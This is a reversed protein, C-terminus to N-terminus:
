DQILNHLPQVRLSPAACDAAVSELATTTSQAEFEPTRGASRLRPFHQGFTTITAGNHSLVASGAVSGVSTGFGDIGGAIAVDTRHWVQPRRRTRFSGFWTRDRESATFGNRHTLGAVRITRSPRGRAANTGLRDDCSAAGDDLRVWANQRGRGMSIRHAAHDEAGVTGLHRRRAPVVQSRGPDLQRRRGRHM